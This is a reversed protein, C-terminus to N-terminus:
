SSAPVIATQPSETDLPLARDTPGVSILTGGDWEMDRTGSFSWLYMQLHPKIIHRISAMTKIFGKGMSNQGRDSVGPSERVYACVYMCVSAYVSVHDLSQCPPRQYIKVGRRLNTNKFRAHYSVLVNMWIIWMNSLTKVELTMWGWINKLWQMDLHFNGVNRWEHNVSHLVNSYYCKTVNTRHVFWRKSMELKRHWVSAQTNTLILDLGARDLMISWMALEYVVNWYWDSVRPVSLWGHALAVFIACGPGFWVGDWTEWCGAVCGEIELGGADMAGHNSSKGFNGMVTM